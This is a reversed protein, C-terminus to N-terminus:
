PENKRPTLRCMNSTDLMILSAVTPRFLKKQGPFLSSSSEWLLVTNTNTTNNSNRGDQFRLANLYGGAECHFFGPFLSLLLSYSFYTLFYPADLKTRKLLCHKLREKLIVNTYKPQKSMRNWVVAWPCLWLLLSLEESSCHIRVCKQHSLQLFRLKTKLEVQLFTQSFDSRKKSNLIILNQNTLKDKQQTKQM